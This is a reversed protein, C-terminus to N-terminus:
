GEKPGGGEHRIFPDLRALAEYDTAWGACAAALGIVGGEGSHVGRRLMLDAARDWARFFRGENGDKTVAILTEHCWRADRLVDSNGTLDRALEEFAPLRWPGCAELHAAISKRVVPLVALGTPFAGIPPLVAVRSDADLFIASDFDELAAQLAFRKDHYAAAGRGEGTPGLRQLYDIAMPGTPAHRIARVPLGEFDSPDDTLVVMSAPALDACLLRARSRYPAHIALTCFCVSVPTLGSPPRHRERLGTTEHRASLARGDRRALVQRVAVRPEHSDGPTGTAGGRAGTVPGVGRRCPHCGRGGPSRAPKQTRRHDHRSPGDSRRPRTAPTESATPNRRSAHDKLAVYLGKTPLSIRADGVLDEMSSRHHCLQAELFAGVADHVRPDGARDPHGIFAAMRHLEAPWDTLLDEYFVFMRPQGSTEALSAQTHALWLWDAEEVSLANRRTLSAAVARPNRICMVYRMPGVLDQWFPLTLCTRPDKWGWLPEAAFTDALLSARGSGSIRSSPTM